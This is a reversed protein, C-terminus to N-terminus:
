REAKSWTQTQMALLRVDRRRDMWRSDVSPKNIVSLRAILNWFLWPCINVMLYMSFLVTLHQSGFFTNNSSKGYKYFDHITYVQFKIVSNFWATCPLLQHCYKLLHKQNKIITILVVRSYQHIMCQTVKSSRAYTLGINILFLVAFGKFTPRCNYPYISLIFGLNHCGARTLSNWPQYNTPCASCPRKKHNSECNQKIEYNTVQYLM